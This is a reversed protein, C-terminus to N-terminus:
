LERGDLRGHRQGIRDDPDVIIPKEDVDGRTGCQTSDLSGLTETEGNKGLGEAPVQLVVGAKADGVVDGEDPVVKGADGDLDDVARRAVELEGMGGVEREEFGQERGALM